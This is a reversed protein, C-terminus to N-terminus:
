ASGLLARVDSNGITPNSQLHHEVQEWVSPRNQNFLVVKVTEDGGAPNPEVHYFPPYLEAERMTQFMMRVGEGADLNPPVPFERL